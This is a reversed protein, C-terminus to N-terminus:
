WPSGHLVATKFDVMERVAARLGEKGVGSGKMGGYPMLDGQCDPCDTNECVVQACDGIASIAPDSWSSLEHDVVIGKAVKIGAQQALETRARAGCSLLLLDGPVERGDILKLSVFGQHNMTVGSGDGDAIVEIGRQRLTRSVIFAGGHDLNREMPVQGQHVLTVAAGAVEAALAIEMGLVGGGLVVIRQGRRIAQRVRDADGLDRLATIGRPLEPDIAEDARSTRLGHLPPILARAGTAFVLRDYAHEEGNSLEVFHRERDIEVVQTGTRVIVGDAALEDLDGLTLAERDTKGVAIDGLMVRNYAAGYEAGVVVLRISHDRVAPLLSDVLRAAVPGYGVIVVRLARRRHLREPM